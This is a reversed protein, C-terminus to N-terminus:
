ISCLSVLLVADGLKTDNGSYSRLSVPLVADGLKTDSSSYSRAGDYPDQVRTVFCKGRRRRWGPQRCVVVGEYNFTLLKQLRPCSDRLMYLGYIPTFLQNYSAGRSRDFNVTECNFPPPPSM